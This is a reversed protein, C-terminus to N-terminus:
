LVGGYTVAGGRDAASGDRPADDACLRPGRLREAPADLRGPPMRLPLAHRRDLREAPDAFRRAPELRVDLVAPEDLERGVAVMRDRLAEGAALPQRHDVDVAVGITEVVGGHAGGVPCPAVGAPVLRHAEDGLPERRDGGLVTRVRHAGVDAVGRREVGEALLVDALEQAGCADAAPEARAGLVAGVLEHRALRHEAGLEDLRDGVEVVGVQAQDDPLVGPGRLRREIRHRVHEALHTAAAARPARNTNTLGRRMSVGSPPMPSVTCSRGSM